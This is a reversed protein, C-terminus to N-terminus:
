VKDIGVGSWREYQFIDVGLKTLNKYINYIPFGMVNFYCGNIKKIFISSLDQIGYGGAKDKHEGTNIYSKIENDSMKKFYVETVEYDKITKGTKCDILCVGSYVYQKKGSFSKLMKFADKDSSPKGLNKGKFVCITDVGIVIGEKHKKSVDLAKGYSFAMVMERPNMKQTMDEEYSSPVIEFDLGMTQALGHRRPSTTALIIKQKAM